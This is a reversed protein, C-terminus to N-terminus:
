FVVVMEEAVNAGVAAVTESIIDKIENSLTANTTRILERATVTSRDVCVKIRLVDFAMLDASSMIGPMCSKISFGPRCLNDHDNEDEVEHQTANTSSLSSSSSPSFYPHASLQTMLTSDLPYFTNTEPDLLEQPQYEVKYRMKACTPIYYGMYYYDYGGEKALSAERCASIKGLHWKEFDSHYIFYVGSVCRPLLDLVSMAVLAGDLRYCQHYTGLKKGSPTQTLPLPSDCLFRQFGQPTADNDQHVAAQYNEFLLYKEKTFTSPEITVSFKHAPEPPIQSSIKSYEPAQVSDCLDFDNKSKKKEEKSKPYKQAAAQIYEEGLVYRTWKHLCQRQGRSPKFSDANLRVALFSPDYLAQLLNNEHSAQVFYPRETAM